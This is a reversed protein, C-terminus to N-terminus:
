IRPSLPQPHLQTMRYRKKGSLIGPEPWVEDGASAAFLKRGQEADAAIAFMKSDATADDVTGSRVTRGEPRIEVPVGILRHWETYAYKKM